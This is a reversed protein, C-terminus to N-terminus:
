LGIYRDNWTMVVTPAGGAASAQITNYGAPAIPDPHLAFNILYSSLTVYSILNGNIDSTVRKNGSTLEITVIEGVGTTFDVVFYYGTEHNYLGITDYAGTVVFTPFTDWTGAMLIETTGILPLSESNVTPDYFTPDYATFEIDEQISYNDWQSPSAFSVGQTIYVKIERVTRVKDVYYIFRLIGPEPNQLVSHNTYDSTINGRLVDILNTRLTWHDSRSEGNHRFTMTIIRPQLGFSIVNEGHQFPGKTTRYNTPPLGLGGMNILSRKPPNDLTYVTGEPTIYQVKERNGRFAYM